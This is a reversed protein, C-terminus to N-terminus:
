GKNNLLLKTAFQGYSDANVVAYEPRFQALLKDLPITSAQISNDTSAGFNNDAPNDSERAHTWAGTADVPPVDVANISGHAFEHILTGVTADSTKEYNGAGYFARGLFMNVSGTISAGTGKSKVAALNARFCAAYCTLGYLTNRLDIVDPTGTFALTLITYNDRIKQIRTADSAGFFDTFAAMDAPSGSGGAISIMADRAYTVALSARRIAENMRMKEATSLDTNIAQTAGVAATWPYTVADWAVHRWGQAKVGTSMANTLQSKGTPAAAAIESDLETLEAALTSAEVPKATRWAALLTVVATLNAGKVGQGASSFTNIAGDLAKLETSRPRVRM